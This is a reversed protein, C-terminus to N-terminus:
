LAEGQGDDSGRSGIGDPRSNEETSEQSLGTLRTRAFKEERATAAISIAM